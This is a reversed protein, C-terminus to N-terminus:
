DGLFVLCSHPEDSCRGALNLVEELLRRRGPAETVNLLDELEPILGKMQYSSFQTTGYPDVLRLLPFRHDDFAPLPFVTHPPTEGTRDIVEGSRTRFDIILPM